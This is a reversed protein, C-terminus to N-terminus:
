YSNYVRIKNVNKPLKGMDIELFTRDEDGGETVAEDIEVPIGVSDIASPEEDNFYDSVETPIDIEMEVCNNYITEMKDWRSDKGIFGTAYTSMGM